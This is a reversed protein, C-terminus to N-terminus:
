LAGAMIETANELAESRNNQPVMGILRRIVKGLDARVTEKRYRTTRSSSGSWLYVLMQQVHALSELVVKYELETTHLEKTLDSELEQELGVDLAEAVCILHVCAAMYSEQCNPNTVDEWKLAQYIQYFGIGFRRDVSPRRPGDLHFDRCWQLLEVTKTTRLSKTRLKTM